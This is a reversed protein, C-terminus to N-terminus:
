DNLRTLVMSIDGFATGVLIRYPILYGSQKLPAYWILFRQNSQMYTTTDSNSFHGSIPKYRMTCLMVPGQYGTAKSKATQEKAFKLEIDYREVGTYINLSRNCIEPELRDAKLLFAAIPDNIARRHSAVIPVRNKNQSLPPAVQESTVNGDQAEFRVNFSQKNAITELEFRNSQLQGASSNGSSSLRATGAAILSALGSVDGSINVSYNQGNDKFSVGVIAINVGRLTVIYTANADLVAAIANYPAWFIALTICITRIFPTYFSAAV